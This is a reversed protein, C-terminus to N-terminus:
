YSYLIIAYYNSIFNTYVNNYEDTLVFYHKHRLANVYILMLWHLTKPTRLEGRTNPMVINGPQRCGAPYTVNRNLSKPDPFRLLWM